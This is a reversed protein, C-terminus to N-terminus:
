ADEREHIPLKPNAAIRRFIEMAKYEVPRFRYSSFPPEVIDGTALRTILSRPHELLRLGVGAKPYEPLKTGTWAWEGVWRVTYVAGKVLADGLQAPRDDVCVVKQGVHFTM